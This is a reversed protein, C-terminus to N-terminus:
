QAPRRGRACLGRARAADAKRLSCAVGRKQRWTQRKTAGWALTRQVAELLEDGRAPKTLFDVAGQKMARASSSVNGHATLFIVPLPDEAQALVEQLELGTSEPMRLDLVVCRAAESRDCKLFEEASAFTEVRYDAARLFRSLARLFSLDDDVLYVIPLRQHQGGTEGPTITEDTV